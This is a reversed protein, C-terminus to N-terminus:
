NKRVLRSVNGCTRTAQRRGKEMRVLLQHQEDQLTTCCIQLFEPGGRGFVIRLKVAAAGENVLEEDSEDGEVGM